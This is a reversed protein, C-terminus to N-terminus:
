SGTATSTTTWLHITQKTADPALLVRPAEIVIAVVNAHNTSLFDQAPTSDCGSANGAAFGRFGTAQTLPPPPNPQNGVNRDPIIKFFQALDFFFPDSRKGIYVRMGNALLTGTSAAGATSFPVTGTFTGAASVPGTVSPTFPGYVNITQNAGNGQPLLQIVMDELGGAGGKASHAIKFQYLVGPDLQTLNSSPTLSTDVDMQLVVKTPDASPYLYVDTIDAAPRAFTLPSDQHDSGRAPLLDYVIGTLVLAVVAALGGLVGSRLKM